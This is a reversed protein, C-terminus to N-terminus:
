NRVRVADAIVYGAASTWRSVGVVNYDGANLHFSGLNRWQGGNIQQNMRITQNGGSTAVIYPTSSNYGANAAWWADVQYTGASPINVKFWATDSALVPDAFRYDTGHRQTSFSSTGWNGSATFRGATTNDVVATFGGGSGALRAAVDARLQPLRAYLVDGPCATAMFDRHGYIQSAPIAYQQCTYAVLNVLSNYLATTPGVTMYTGENEIGISQNNQAGAHTGFVFSTGGNLTEISRHRGEMIHGGRSVTFQQGSDIWGNSDMHFNQVARALSQARALSYDTQNATATHHIIVKNPRGSILSVPTRPARAGWSATGHMTPRAVAAHAPSSTLTHLGGTAAGVGVLVAGRMMARRSLPPLSM